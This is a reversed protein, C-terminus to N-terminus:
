EREGEKERRLLAKVIHRRGCGVSHHHSPPNQLLPAAVATPRGISAILSSRGFISARRRRRVCAAVCAMFNLESRFSHLYFFISSRGVSGHPPLFFPFPRSEMGKEKFYKRHDSRKGKWSIGGGGGGACSKALKSKYCRIGKGEKRSGKKRKCAMFYEAAKFRTEM